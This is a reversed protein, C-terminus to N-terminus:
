IVAILPNSWEMHEVILQWNYTNCLRVIYTHPWLREFTLAHPLIRDSCTDSEDVESNLKSLGRSSLKLTSCTVPVQDRVLIPTQWTWSSTEKRQCTKSSRKLCNGWLRWNTSSKSESTSLRLTQVCKTCSWGQQLCILKTQWVFQSTQKRQFKFTICRRSRPKICQLEQAYHLKV